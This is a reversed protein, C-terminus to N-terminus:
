IEHYIYVRRGNRIELKELRFSRVTARAELDFLGASVKGFMAVEVVQLRNQFFTRKRCGCRTVLEAEVYGPPQEEYPLRREPPQSVIDYGMEFFKHAAEGLTFLEEGDKRAEPQKAEKWKAIKGDLAIARM